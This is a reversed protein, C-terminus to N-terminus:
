LFVPKWIAGTSDDPLCATLALPEALAADKAATMGRHLAAHDYGQCRNGLMTAHGNGRSRSLQCVGAHNLAPHCRMPHTGHRESDTLGSLCVRGVCLVHGLARDLM